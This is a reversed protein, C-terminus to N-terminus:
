IATRFRSAAGCPPVRVPLRDLRGVLQARDARRDARPHDPRAIWLPFLASVVRLASVAALDKVYREMGPPNADFCWGIHAHWLGKLAGWAGSGHHHPTHPDNPTDSYQHHRRHMGVWDFLSGEVAMSGCIAIICKIWTWTEFSRHVFLRHFGITIGLATVIYMVLLLWLDTWGFDRGRVYFPTVVVGALPVLMAVLTVCRLFFPPAPPLEAQPNAVPLESEEAM